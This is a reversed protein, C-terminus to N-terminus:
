ALVPHGFLTRTDFARHHDRDYGIHEQELPPCLIQGGDGASRTEFRSLSELTLTLLGTLRALIETKSNQAAGDYVLRGRKAVSGNSAGDRGELRPPYLAQVFRTVADPTLTMKPSFWYTVPWM